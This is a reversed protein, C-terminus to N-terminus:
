YDYDEGEESQYDMFWDVAEEETDFEMDWDGDEPRYLDRDGFVTVFKDGYPMRRYLSYDTLFDGDYVDKRDMLQWYEDEPEEEWSEYGDPLDESVPDFSSNVDRVDDLKTEFEHLMDVTSKDHVYRKM